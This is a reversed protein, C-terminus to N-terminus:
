KLRKAVDITGGATLTGTQVKGEIWVLTRPTERYEFVEKGIENQYGIDEQIVRKAEGPLKICLHGKIQKSVGCGVHWSKIIFNYRSNTAFIMQLAEGYEAEIFTYVKTEDDPVGAQLTFAWVLLFLIFLLRM